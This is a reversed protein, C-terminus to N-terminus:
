VFAREMLDDIMSELAAWIRDWDDLNSFSLGNFVSATKSRLVLYHMAATLIAFSAEADFNKNTAIEKFKQTMALGQSERKEAIQKLPANEDILEWRYIEQLNKNELLHTLNTKFVAKTLYKLEDKSKIESIDWDDLNLNSYLDNQYLFSQILGDLSTFYRYILVKDCGAERAIVNIGLGKFGNVKVIRGVAELIKQETQKRRHTHDNM